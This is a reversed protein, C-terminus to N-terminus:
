FLRYILGEALLIKVYYKKPIQQIKSNPRGITEKKDGPSM